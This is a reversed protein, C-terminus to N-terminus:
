FLYTLGLQASNGIETTNVTDSGQLDIRSIKIPNYLARINLHDTLKSELGISIGYSTAYDIDQGLVKGSFTEFVIGLLFDTNNTLKKKYHSFVGINTLQTKSNSDDSTTYAFLETVFDKTDFGVSGYGNAYVTTRIQANISSISVFIMLLAMIIRKIM